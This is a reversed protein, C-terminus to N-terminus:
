LSDVRASESGGGRGSEACNWRGKSYVVAVDMRLGLVPMRKCQRKRRWGGSCFGACLCMAMTVLWLETWV